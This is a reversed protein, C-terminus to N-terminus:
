FLCAEYDPSPEPLRPAPIAKLRPQAAPQPTKREPEAEQCPGCLKVAQPGYLRVPTEHCRVCPGRETLPIPDARSFQVANSIRAATCWTCDSAERGPSVPTDNLCSPCSGTVAGAGYYRM